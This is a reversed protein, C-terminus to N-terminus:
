CVDPGLWYKSVEAIVSDGVVFHDLAFLTDARLSVRPFFSSDHAPVPVDVCRSVGTPSVVTLYAHGSVVTNNRISADVHFVAYRGASLNFIGMPNSLQRMVDYINEGPGMEYNIELPIGRRRERPIPFSDLPQWSTDAVIVYESSGGFYIISDGSADMRVTGWIAYFMDRYVALMQGLREPAGNPVRWRLGATGHEPDAAAAYLSGGSRVLRSTLGPIPLRTRVSSSPLDWLVAQRRLIDIIALTSDDLVTLASPGEFENPGGGYRGITEVFAGTADFRLVRRSPVDTVFFEGKASVGLANPNALYVSDTDTLRISAFPVLGSESVPRSRTPNEAGACGALGAVLVLVLPAM